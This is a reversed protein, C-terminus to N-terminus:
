DADLTAQLLRDFSATGYDPASATIVVRTTYTRDDARAIIPVREGAPRDGVVSLELGSVGNVPLPVTQGTQRLTELEKASLTGSPDGTLEVIAENVDTMLDGTFKLRPSPSNASISAKLLLSIVGLVLVVVGFAGLNALVIVIILGTWQWERPMGALIRIPEPTNRGDWQDSTFSKIVWTEPSRLM